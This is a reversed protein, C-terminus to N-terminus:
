KLVGLRFLKSVAETRNKSNTKDMVNKIFYKINAESFNLSRAIENTTYGFSIYKIITLEKDSFEKQAKTSKQSLLETIALRFNDAENINEETVEFEVNIATFFAIVVDNISIPVLFLNDIIVPVIYQGGISIQLQNDNFFRVENAKLHRHIHENMMMYEHVHQLSKVDPYQYQLVGSFSNDLRSYRFLQSVEAPFNKHFIKLFEFSQENPHNHDEMEFFISHFKNM